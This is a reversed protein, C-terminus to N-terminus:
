VLGKSKLFVELIKASALAEAQTLAPTGDVNKERWKDRIQFPIELLKGSAKNIETGPGVAKREEPTLKYYLDQFLSVLNRTYAPDLYKKEEVEMTPEVKEGGAKKWSNELNPMAKYQNEFELYSEEPLNMAKGDLTKYSYTGDPNRKATKIINELASRTERYGSAYHAIGDINLGNYDMHRDSKLAKYQETKSLADYFRRADETSAFNLVFRTETGDLHPKLTKETDAHKFALAIKNDKAIQFAVDRIKEMDTLPIDLYIREKGWELKGEAKMKKAEENAYEYWFFGTDTEGNKVRWKGFSDPSAEPTTKAEPTETPTAIGLEKRLEEIKKKDIKRREEKEALKALRSEIQSRFSGPLGQFISDKSEGNQIRAVYENVKQEAASAPKEETSPVVDGVNSEPRATGAQKEAWSREREAKYEAPTEDIRMARGRMHMEKQIGLLEQDKEAPPQPPQTPFGEMKM